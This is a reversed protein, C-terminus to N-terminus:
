LEVGFCSTGLFLDVQLLFEGKKRMSVRTETRTPRSEGTFFFVSQIKLQYHYVFVIITFAEHFRLVITYSHFSQGQARLFYRPEIRDCSVTPLM